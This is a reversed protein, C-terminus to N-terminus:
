FRGEVPATVFGDPLGPVLRDGILSDTTRGTFREELAPFANTDFLPSASEGFVGTADRKDTTYLCGSQAINKRGDELMGDMSAKLLFHMTMYNFGLPYVDEVTVEPKGDRGSVDPYMKWGSVREGGKVNCRGEYLRVTAGGSM